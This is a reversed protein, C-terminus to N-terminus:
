FCAGPKSRDACLVIRPEFGCVWSIMAQAWTPHKILQVACTSRALLKLIVKKVQLKGGFVLMKPYRIRENNTYQCISFM